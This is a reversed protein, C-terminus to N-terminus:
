ENQEAETAENVHKKWEPTNALARLKEYQDKDLAALEPYAVKMLEKVSRPMQIWWEGVPQYVEWFRADNVRDAIWDVQITWHSNKSDKIWEGDMSDVWDTVEGWIEEGLWKTPRLVVTDGDEVTCTLSGKPMAPIEKEFYWIVDQPTIM